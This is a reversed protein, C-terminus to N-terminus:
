NGKGGRTAAITESIDITQKLARLTREMAKAQEKMGLQLGHVAARQVLEIGREADLKGTLILERNHPERLEAVIAGLTYYVLELKDVALDRRTVEIPPPDPLTLKIYATYSLLYSLPDPIAVDFITNLVTCPSHTTTLMKWATAGQYKTYRATAHKGTLAIQKFRADTAIEKLQQWAFQKFTTPRCLWKAINRWYAKINDYHAVGEPSALFGVGKISNDPDPESAFDAKVGTVNINTFHHFTSDVVVRGVKALRGNYAVIVPFDDGNVNTNSDRLDETPDDFNPDKTRSKVNAWAVVEPSVRTGDSRKPYEDHAQANIIFTKSLDSPVECRGEHMHDPLVNIVGKPGCLLPHPVSEMWGVNGGAVHTIHQRIVRMVPDIKQPIDDSQDQFEYHTNHGTDLTDLRFPGVPPPSKTADPTFAALNDLHDLWGYDATWKRMSRVRPVKACLDAGLDDHDGTAFVGGGDNMFQALVAVEADSLEFGAPDKYPGAPNKSAFGVLWVEDYNDPDFFPAAFKFSSIDAGATNAMGDNWRHAKTVQCGGDELAEVLETLGFRQAPATYSGEADTVMLVRIM